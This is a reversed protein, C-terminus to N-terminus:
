TFVAPRCNFCLSVKELAATYHTYLVTPRTPRNRNRKERIEKKKAGSESMRPLVVATRPKPWIDTRVLAGFCVSRIQSGQLCAQYVFLSFPNFLRAMSSSRPSLLHLSFSMLVAPLFHRSVCFFLWLCHMLDLNKMHICQFHFVSKLITLYFPHWTSHIVLTVFLTRVKHPIQKEFYNVSKGYIQPFCECARWPTWTSRPSRETGASVSNFGSWVISVLRCIVASISQLASFGFLCKCPEKWTLFVFTLCVM